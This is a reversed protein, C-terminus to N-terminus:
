AMNELIIEKVIKLDAEIKKIDTRIYNILEKSSVHKKIHAYDYYDKKGYTKWKKRSSSKELIPNDELNFNYLCTKEKISDCIRELDGLKAKDELSFNVKHRYQNGQIQIDFSSTTGEIPLDIGLFNDGRIRGSYTKYGLDAIKKELNAYHIKEIVSRLRMGELVKNSSKELFYSEGYSIKEIFKEVNKMYDIYDILFLRFTEDVKGLLDNYYEILEGYSRRFWNEPLEFGPEVLSLLIGKANSDKESYRVLQDEDPLSKVKNEIFIVHTQGDEDIVEITLDISNKERYVKM